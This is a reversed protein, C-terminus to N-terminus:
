DALPKIEVAYGLDVLGKKMMDKEETTGPNGLHVNLNVRIIAIKPPAHVM